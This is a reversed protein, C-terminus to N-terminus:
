GPSGEPEIWAGGFPLYGVGEGDGTPGGLKGFVTGDTILMAWAWYLEALSLLAIVIYSTFLFAANLLCSKALLATALKIAIMWCSM